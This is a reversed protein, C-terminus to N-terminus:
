EGDYVAVGNGMAVLAQVNDHLPPCAGMRPYQQEFQPEQRVCMPHRMGENPLGLSIM